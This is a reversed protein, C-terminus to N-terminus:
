RLPIPCSIPRAQALCSRSSVSASPPRRSWRERRTPQPREFFPARRVLRDGLSSAGRAGHAGRRCGSLVATLGSLQVGLRGDRAARLAVLLRRSRGSLSSVCRVIEVRGLERAVRGSERAQLFPVRALWRENCKLAVEGQLTPSMIRLLQRHTVTLQLHRTQHFYERLRLKLEKPLGYLSMFRNQPLHSPAPVAHHCRAAFQNGAREPSPTRLVGRAWYAVVAPDPLGIDRCHHCHQCTTHHGKCQVGRVLDDMNQKFLIVEPQMTSIVGCFTAIVYGWVMSTVLMVAVPTVQESPRTPHIDGYGISTITMIAWYLSVAYVTWEDNCHIGDETTVTFGADSANVFGPAACFGFVGLWSSYADDAFLEVQLRWICSCWHGSLVVCAFSSGGRFPLYLTDTLSPSVGLTCCSALWCGM